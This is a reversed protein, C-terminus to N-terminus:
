LNFEALVPQSLIAVVGVVVGVRETDATGNAGAPVIKFIGADAKMSHPPIEEDCTSKSDHIKEFPRVSVLPPVGVNVAVATSATGDNVREASTNSAKM